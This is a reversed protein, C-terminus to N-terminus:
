EARRVHVVDGAGVAVLGDAGEVLLRGDADVGVARGRLPAAHPLEVRVERGVTDCVQQYEGPLGSASGQWAAYRGSLEHLLRGLLETRDVPGGRELELSTAAAHPLEGARQGVNLGVGVIAAPGHATEVRQLLIGCVKRDVLLVDNPWKVRADFGAERLAAHVALGTLLPLWPWASAPADPRLLASFTLAARDPTVWARDLRGRGATQHETAVVLGESEGAVARAAATDNTSPDARSIEARWGAPVDLRTPDLPPRTEPAPDM